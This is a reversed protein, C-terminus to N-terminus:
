RTVASYGASANMRLVPSARRVSTEAHHPTIIYDPVGQMMESSDEQNESSNADTEFVTFYAGQNVSAQMRAHRCAATFTDHTSHYVGNLFVKFM